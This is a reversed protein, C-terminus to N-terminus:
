SEASATEATRYTTLINLRHMSTLVERIPTPTDMPPEMPGMSVHQYLDDLTHEGASGLVTEALHDLYAILLDIGPQAPGLYGHGPVLTEVDITDRFTRLTTAYSLPDGILAMTGLGAPFAFKGTYAVKADPVYVITDGPRQRARLAM